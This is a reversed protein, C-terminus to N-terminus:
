KVKALQADLVAAPVKPQEDARDATPLDAGGDERSEDDRVVSEPDYHSSAAFSVLTSGKRVVTVTWRKVFVDQRGGVRYSVAEDGKDPAALAKVGSYRLDGTRFAACKENKAATRLEGLARAAARESGYAYLEVDTMAVVRADKAIVTRGVHGKAGPPTASTLLDALPACAAPSAPADAWAVELKNPRRTKVDHGRVDGKALSAATLEAPAGGGDRAGGGGGSGRSGDTDRAGDGDGNPAGGDRGKPKAQETSSKGGDRGDGDGGGCAATLGLTAAVSVAVVLRSM